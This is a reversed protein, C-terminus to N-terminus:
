FLVAERRRRRFTRAAWLAAGGSSARGPDARRAGPAALQVVRRAPGLSDDLADSTGGGGAAGGDDNGKGDGEQLTVSVTSYNTQELLGRIQSRLVNIERANQDLRDRLRQIGPRRRGRRGPPAAPRPARCPRGALRDTASVYERTVDQGTQSRATM